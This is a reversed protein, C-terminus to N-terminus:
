EEVPQEPSEDQISELVDTSASEQTDSGPGGDNFVEVWGNKLYYANLAFDGCEGQVGTEVHTIRHPRKAM